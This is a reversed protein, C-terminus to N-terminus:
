GDDSKAVAEIGSGSQPRGSEVFRELQLEMPEILYSSNNAAAQEDQM